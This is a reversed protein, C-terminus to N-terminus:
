IFLLKISNNLSVGHIISGFGAFVLIVGIIILEM